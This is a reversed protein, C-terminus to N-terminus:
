VNNMLNFTRRHIYRTSIRMFHNSIDRQTVVPSLVVLVRHNLWDRLQVDVSLQESNLGATGPHTSSQRLQIDNLQSFSISFLRMM